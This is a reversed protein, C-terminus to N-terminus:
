ADKNMKNITSNLFSAWNDDPMGWGDDKESEEDLSFGKFEEEIKGTNKDSGNFVCEMKVNDTKTPFVFARILYNTHKEVEKFSQEIQHKMEALRSRAKTESMQGMPIYIAFILLERREVNKPLPPPPPPTNLFHPLENAYLRSYSTYMPDEEIISNMKRTFETLPETPSEKLLDFSYIKDIDVTNDDNLVGTARMGMYLPIKKEALAKAIRGKPTGDLIVARGCLQGRDDDMWLDIIRHSVNALPVEFRDPHGLEGLLNGNKIDNRLEEVKQVVNSIKYERGNKNRELELFSGEAFAIGDQTITIRLPEM